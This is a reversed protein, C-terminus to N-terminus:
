VALRKSLLTALKMSIIKDETILGLVAMTLASTSRLEEEVRKRGWSEHRTLSESHAIRAVMAQGYVEQVTTRIKESFHNPYQDQWYKIVEEFVIFDSNLLVTGYPEQASPKLWAAAAGEELDDEKV